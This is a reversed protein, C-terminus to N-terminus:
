ATTHARVNTWKQMFAGPDELPHGIMGDRSIMESLDSRSCASPPLIQSPTRDNPPCHLFRSQKNKEGSLRKDVGPLMFFSRWWLASSPILLWLERERLSARRCAELFARAEGRKFARTARILARSLTYFRRCGFRPAPVPSRKIKRRPTFGERQGIVLQGDAM